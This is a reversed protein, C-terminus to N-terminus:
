VNTEGRILAAAREGIALVTANLNARISSPMVSADAVRLGTLGYVRLEPDLVANEDDGIRCTGAPHFQTYVIRRLFETDDEGSTLEKGHFESLAATGGVERAIRLGDLLATVDREDSLYNPDILPAATPDASALRVSGRSEAVELSAVISFGNEPGAKWRPHMVVDVFMIQIGGVLLRPKRSFTATMSEPTQYRVQSMLHDHLNGGVGSLDVKVEIGVERLHAAPGVGSLQLLQPSAVAGAALVVERDARVTEAAGGRVAYEVGVCRDGEIIVRYAQAETLVTLNDRRLSRLYNDSVSQRTGGVVNMENWTAGFASEANGDPNRRYGAELLAEYGAEWLRNRGEPVSVLMPGETGRYAPDRGPATESRRFYPLLSAYDWGQAGAAAWADYDTRDGRIHYMGNIGSSGGLVRGRPYVIEDGNLHRQATTSFGWDVRTGFLREWRLPNAMAELPIASGAELLLVRVDTDESLRAALVSGATGGGVIVYDYSM